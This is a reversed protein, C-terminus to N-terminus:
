CDGTTSSKTEAELLESHFAPAASDRHRPWPRSFLWINRGLRPAEAGSGGLRCRPIDSGRVILNVAFDLHPGAYTRTMEVLLRALKEGPMFQVFQRYSLPGLRLLFHSQVDWVRQGLVAQGGLRCHARQRPISVGPLCTRDERDLYLWQGHFQELEVPLEFYEGLMEELSVACRPAHSYFGSYHLLAAEDGLRGRLGPLGLGILSLLVTTVPDDGARSLSVREFSAPLRYKEWCRFFYSVLRHNFVDFFDRLATDKQRVMEALLASYHPALAGIHGTLGILSTSMEPPNGERPQIDSVASAPFGFSITARFRAAEQEPAADYGVPQRDEATALRQLLRIAQFFDFEQPAAFLREALSPTSPAARPSPPEATVASTQGRVTSEM